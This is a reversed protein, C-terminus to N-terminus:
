RSCRARTRVLRARSPLAPQVRRGSIAGCVRTHPATWKGHRAVAPLDLAGALPLSAPRKEPTERPQVPVPSRHPPFSDFQLRRHDPQQRQGARDDPHVGDEERREGRQKRMVRRRGPQGLGARPDQDRGVRRAREDPRQRAAREDGPEAVPGHRHSPSASIPTDVSAKPQVVEAPSSTAARRTCPMPPAQVQVAESDQSAVAAGSDRRPSSSPVAIPAATTPASNPGTTPATALKTPM